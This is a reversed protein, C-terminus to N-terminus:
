KDVKILDFVTFIWNDVNELTYKLRSSGKIVKATFETTKNERVFSRFIENQYEDNTFRKEYSEVDILVKEDHLDGREMILLELQNLSENKHKVDIKGESILRDRISNARLESLMKQKSKLKYNM